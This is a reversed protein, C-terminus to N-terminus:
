HNGQVGDILETLLLALWCIEWKNEKELTSTNKDWSTAAHKRIFSAICKTKQWWHSGSSSMSFRKCAEGVIVANFHCHIRIGHLWSSTLRNLSWESWTANELKVVSCEVYLCYETRGALAFIGRWSQQWYVGRVFHLTCSHRLLYLFQEVSSFWKIGFFPRREFRQGVRHRQEESTM